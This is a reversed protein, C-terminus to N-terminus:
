SNGGRLTAVKTQPVPCTAADAEPLMGTEATDRVGLGYGLAFLPKAAAQAIQCPEAPWAFSLRGTFDATLAGQDHAVLVDTIGKGETGPLWAAVFADSLNLLDNVYLPRGSYFVTIVPKGHGAVRRLVALDEPNRRTHQLSEGPKIDGHLEAYPTEGLVAVIADFDAPDSGQGTEDYRVADVGLADRLATLLTDGNPFDENHNETGQWTLSWGGTQNALNHASKGVVLVRAGRKLPLAAGHNKLLVLSERVARRALARDVLPDLRGAGAGDAPRHEFMGARMKVRLIRTVADDIRALPIEGSRVQAVTNTIFSRWKEPVMIMDIGANIAQPCSDDQCGPLQGIGNWDSVVFGDFGLREKLVHTLMLESGHMKGHDGSGSADTWSNFSAMVTQVGADLAGYYGQAHVRIMTQVDSRNNGQDVGQFTGGDGMYHKATAITSDPAGLTGQIGRVYAAAYSRVIAPDQSYSEYARGWHADQSVALCPSFAWGLGTARVAAGIRHGIAEVLAPDHTAGLGVNHPFLTAGYVNSHGHIADTGWILPIPTALGTHMSAEHYSEALALWDAPAAHKQQGPWSGGGNLVSGLAYTRVDDPTVSQIEGQTMQGVKQELTMHALVQAIRAEITDDRQPAAHVPWQLALATDSVSVPGAISVQTAGVLALLASAASAFRMSRHLPPVNTHM